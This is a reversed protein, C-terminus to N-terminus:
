LNGLFRDISRVTELPDDGVHITQLGLSQAAEINALYDDLFLAQGAAIGEIEKLALEFIKPDPKRFGVASSDVVFHFLEEVPLPLLSRWGDGFEKVNNTIIGLRYGDDRLKIVRDILPGRDGAGANNEAMKAFLQYIDVELGKEQGISLILERTHELSIEGRELQHWPHDGDNEYSGFIIGTVDEPKLGLEEGFAHVATFPSDTFVGGFDFLVAKIEESM